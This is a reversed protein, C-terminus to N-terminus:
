IWKINLQWHKGFPFIIINPGNWGKCKDVERM